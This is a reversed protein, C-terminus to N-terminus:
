PSIASVRTVWFPLLATKALRKPLRPEIRLAVDIANVGDCLEIRYGNQEFMEIMTVRTFFRLHTRELTGTDAYDWRGRILRWVVPVFQISPILTLLQGHPTLWRRTERLMQWPDFVHELM